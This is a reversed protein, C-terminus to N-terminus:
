FPPDWLFGISACGLYTLWFAIWPIHTASFYFARPYMGTLEDCAYGL